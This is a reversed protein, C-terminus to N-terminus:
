LYISTLTSLADIKILDAPALPKYDCAVQVENSYDSNGRDNTAYFRFIYIMGPILGDPIDNLTHYMLNTSYSTVPDFTPDTIARMELVYDEIM